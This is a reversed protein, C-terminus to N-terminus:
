PGLDTTSTRYHTDYGAAQVNAPWPDEVHMPWRVLVTLLLSRRAEQESMGTCDLLDAQIARWTQPLDRVLEEAQEPPLDDFAAIVVPQVLAPGPRHPSLGREVLLDVLCAEPGPSEALSLPTPANPSRPLAVGVAVSATPSPHQRLVLQSGSLRPPGFMAPDPPPRTPLHSLSEQLASQLEASSAIAHITARSITRAFFSQHHHPQIAARTGAWGQPPHQYPHGEFLVALLDDIVTAPPPVPAARSGPAIAGVLRTTCVEPRTEHCSISVRAHDRGVEIEVGEVEATASQLASWALGELGTPDWRSGGNILILTASSEDSPALEVVTPAAAREQVSPGPAIKPGCALVFVSAGM